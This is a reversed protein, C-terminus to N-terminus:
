RTRRRASIKGQRRRHRCRNSPHTTKTNANTKQHLVKPNDIKHWEGPRIGNEISDLNWEGVAYRILRLTPYGIAATMRRVQRNRGETITIELWTTPISVRYRVPPIRPWLNAPEQIVRVKAPQTMGDKLQVGNQLANIAKNDPTGEVQVWYTKPQKHKPHSIQHQLAGDDTLVLLGESDKDLRGAAYVDKHSIYDALNPSDGTFQCLVNYPKNFLIIM